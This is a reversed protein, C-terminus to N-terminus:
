VSFSQGCGCSGSSNPNNFVFGRGMLDDKFDVVTNDLYILSKNDVVVKIGEIEQVSDTKEVKTDFGMQYSFGSCGGGVIKVRLNADDPLNEAEIEKAMLTKLEGIAKETLQIGM